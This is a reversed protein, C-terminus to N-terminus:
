LFWFFMSVKFLILQYLITASKTKHMQELVRALHFLTSVKSWPLEVSIGQEELRYFMQLDKYQHVTSSADVPYLANTILNSLAAHSPSRQEERNTAEGYADSQEM